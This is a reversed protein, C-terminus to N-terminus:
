RAQKGLAAETPANPAIRGAGGNPKIPPGGPEGPKPPNVTRDLEAADAENQQKGLEEALAVDEDSMSAYVGDLKLQSAVLGEDVVGANLYIQDRQANQYGIAANETESTEWLSKFEWEYNEPITGLVHRIFIRDLYELQPRIDTQQNSVLRNYYNRLDGDGTSNLGGPSQGFLRTRPVDAAACIEDAAKDWVDALNTFSNSKKEYEEDSSLLLCRNMSKMATSAAFRKAVQREGDATALLDTIGASKIVDINAEFMMTAISAPITEYNALTDIVHQLESDHWMGNGLWAFYPLLQGDFRIVRTHHVQVSSEALLYGDPLGFNPSTLDTTRQGTPACRWRDIVHLYRLCDKGLTDPDLPEAMAESNAANGGLAVDDTGIVILCGGYLRAWRLAQNFKDQIAFEKEADQLAKLKPNDDADGLNFERWARTLDDAITNVIRKSIWSGRYMCELEFRTLPRPQAWYSFSRKDRPGGLGAVMNQLGDGIPHPILEPKVRSLDDAIKNFFGPATDAVPRTTRSLAAAVSKVRRATV